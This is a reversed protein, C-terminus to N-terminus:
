QLSAMGSEDSFQWVRTIVLVDLEKLLAKPLPPFPESMRVIRKAAEDLAPYGSSRSVRISYISGDPKIGVDMTLQGKKHRAVDPYNLNGTREVKAQWDLMYQAALYQHTSLSHIFKIRSPESSPTEYRIQAGLQAVQRALSERTLKPPQPHPPPPIDQPAVSVVPTTTIRPSAQPRTVVKKAPPASHSPTAPAPARRVKDGPSPIKQAPPKPKVTQQGGGVQHSPALLRAKPPAKPTPLSVLTIELPEHMRKPEPWQIGIGLILVVHLVGAIFLAVLLRDNSPIVLANFTPSLSM